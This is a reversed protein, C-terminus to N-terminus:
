KPPIIRVHMALPGKAPSPDALYFHVHDGKKLTRTGDAAVSRISNFPCFVYGFQTTLTVFRKPENVSAVVGEHRERGPKLRPRVPFMIASTEYEPQAVTEV